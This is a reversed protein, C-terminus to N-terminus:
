WVKIMSWCWCWPPLILPELEEKIFPINSNESLSLSVLKWFSFPSGLSLPEIVCPRFVGVQSWRISLLEPHGMQSRYKHVSKVKHKSTSCFLCSASRYVLRRSKARLQSQHKLSQGQDPGPSYHSFQPYKWQCQFIAPMTDKLSQPCLQLSPKATLYVEQEQLLYNLELCGHGLAMVVQLELELPDSVRKKICM